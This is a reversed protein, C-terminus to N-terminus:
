IVCSNCVDCVPLFVLRNFSHLETEPKCKSESLLETTAANGKAWLARRVLADASAGSARVGRFPASCRQGFNQSRLSVACAASIGNEASIDSHGRSRACAPRSKLQRLFFLLFSVDSSSQISVSSSGSMCISLTAGPRIWPSGNSSTVSRVPAMASRLDGSAVLQLLSDKRSNM